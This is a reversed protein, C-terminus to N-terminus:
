ATFSEQKFLAQALKPNSQDIDKKYEQESCITFEATNIPQDNKWSLTAVASHKYPRASFYVSCTYHKNSPIQISLNTIDADQHVTILKNQVIIINFLTVKDKSIIPLKWSRFFDYLYSSNKCILKKIYITKCSVLNQIKLFAGIIEALTYDPANICDFTHLAEGPIMSIFPPPTHNAEIKNIQIQRAVHPTYILGAQTSTIILDQSSLSPAVIESTLMVGHTATLILQFETKHAHRVSAINGLNESHLTYSTDLYPHILLILEQLETLATPIPRKLASFFRPFETSTILQLKKFVLDISNRTIGYVMNNNSDFYYPPLSLHPVEQTATNEALTGVIVPFHLDISKKNHTLYPKHLHEDGAYCSSYFLLHTTIDNNLFELLKKFQKITLSAICGEFPNTHNKVQTNLWLMNNELVKLAHVCNAYKADAETLKEIKKQYTNKLHTLRKIELDSSYTPSGHGSLYFSWRTVASTHPGYEKNAVLVSQLASLIDCTSEQNNSKNSCLEEKTKDVLRNLKIGSARELATLPKKKDKITYTADTNLNELAAIQKKPVLLCLENNIQKIIWQDLEQMCAYCMLYAVLHCYYKKANSNLHYNRLKEPASSSGFRKDQCLREIVLNISTDDTQRIVTALTTNVENYLRNSYACHEQFDQLDKLKNFRKYHGYKKQLQKLPLTLADSYLQAHLFITSLLSISTLIPAVQQNIGILLLDSMAGVGPPQDNNEEFLTNFTTDANEVCHYDLVIILEKYNIAQPKDGFLYYTNICSLAIFLLKQKSNYM